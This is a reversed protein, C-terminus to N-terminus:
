KEMDERHIDNHCATCVWKVDLWNETSYSEHHGNIRVGSIGCVSCSDPKDVRGSRIENNLFQHAKRAEKHNDAWLRHRLYFADKNQSYYVRDHARIRDINDRRYKRDRARKKELNNKRYEVAILKTCCRCKPGLGSTSSSKKNFDSALKLEGCRSCRWLEIGDVIVPARRPTTM